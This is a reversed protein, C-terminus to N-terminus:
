QGSGQSMLLLFQSFDFLAHAIIAPLISRRWITVVSFSVSLIAVIMLAAPTQEMAHLATFITSSLVVAAVWSGTARRLRPMIFGRFFVEEYVGITIALLLFVFPSASPIIDLLGTANEQMQEIFTPWVLMALGIAALILGYIVFTLAVGIIGDMAIGRKRLGIAGLPQGRCWIIVGVLGITMTARIALMPFLLEKYIHPPIDDMSELPINYLIPVVLGLGIGIVLECIIALILILGVDIIAQWPSLPYLLIDFDKLSRIDTRPTHLPRALPVTVESPSSLLGEPPLGFLPVPTIAEPQSHDQPTEDKM